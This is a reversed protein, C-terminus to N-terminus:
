AADDNDDNEDPDRGIPFIWKLDPNGISISTTSSDEETDTNESYSQKQYIANWGKKLSLNIDNYKQTNGGETETSGKATITVDKDVYMFWVREETLSITSGSVNRSLDAKFVASYTDDTVKIYPLEAFKVSEDSITIDTYPYRYWSTIEMLSSAPPTGVTYTLIGGKIEGSVEWAADSKLVLDDDFKNFVPMDDDDWDVTYVQGSLELKDGFSTKGGGGNPDGNGNNPDNGDDCAILAFMLIVAIFGCVLINKTKM